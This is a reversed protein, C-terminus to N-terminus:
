FDDLCPGTDAGPQLGWAAMCAGASGGSAGKRGGCNKPKRSNGTFSTTSATAKQAPNSWLVRHRESVLRQGEVDGVGELDM